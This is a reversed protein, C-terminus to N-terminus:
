IWLTVVNYGSTEDVRNALTKLRITKSAKLYKRWEEAIETYRNILAQIDNDALMTGLKNNQSFWISQLTGYDRVIADIALMEYWKRNVTIRLEIPCVDATMGVSIRMRSEHDVFEIDNGGRYIDISAEPVECTEKARVLWGKKTFATLSLDSCMGALRNVQQLRRRHDDGIIAIAQEPNDLIHEINRSLITSLAVIASELQGRYLHLKMWAIPAQPIGSRLAEYHEIDISSRRMGTNFRNAAIQLRQMKVETSVSSDLSEIVIPESISSFLDGISNINDSKEPLRWLRVQFWATSRMMESDKSILIGVRCSRNIFFWSHRGAFAQAPHRVFGYDDCLFSYASSIIHNLRAM